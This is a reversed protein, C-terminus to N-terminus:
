HDAIKGVRTNIDTIYLIHIRFFFLVIPCSRMCNIVACIYIYAQKLWFCSCTYTINKYKVKVPYLPQKHKKWHVLLPCSCALLVSESSYHGSLWVDLLSCSCASLVYESSYHESLRVHLLPYSCASMV